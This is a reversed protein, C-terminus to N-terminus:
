LDLEQERPELSEVPEWSGTDSPLAFARLGGPGQPQSPLQPTIGLHESDVTYTIGSFSMEDSTALGWKVDVPPIAPNFPNNASNDHHSIMQFTTGALARMPEQFEYTLQWNFDYNPVWILTERPGSPPTAWLGMNKGRYHMHVGTSYVTINVPTTYTAQHESNPDGAAIQLQWASVLQGRIEKDITEDPQALHLAFHSLDTQDEGSTNHYHIQLMLDSGAALRRGIGRPSLPTVNGPAWMQLIPMRVLESDMSGCEWGPETTASDLASGIRQPDGFLIFHHVVQSNGPQFEVAKLWLERDEAFPVSFCRYEDDVEKGVAAAALPQLVLDPKKLQWGGEYSPFIRPRPLDAPNGEPAGAEAWAVVQDIEDQSLNLDGKMPRSDPHAFWPPMKRAAVQRAISKAWPRVESYSTLPMPGIQGQRHCGLCRQQLTPAIHKTYTIAGATDTSAALLPSSPALVPGSAASLLALALLGAPVPRSKHSHRSHSM